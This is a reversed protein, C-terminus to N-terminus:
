GSMRQKPPHRKSSLFYQVSSSGILFWLAIAACLLSVVAYPIILPNGTVGQRQLLTLHAICSLLLPLALVLRAWTLGLCTLYALGVVWLSQIWPRLMFGSPSGFVVPVM